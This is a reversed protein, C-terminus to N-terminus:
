SSLDALLEQFLRKIFYAIFKCVRWTRKSGNAIAKPTFYSLGRKMYLKYFKVIKIKCYNLVKQLFRNFKQAFRFFYGVVKQVTKEVKAALYAKARRYHKALNRGKKWWVLPNLWDPFLSKAIAPLAKTVFWVLSKRSVEKAGNFINLSRAYLNVLQEQGWTALAVFPAAVIEAVHKITEKAHHAKEIVAHSIAHKTSRYAEVMRNKIDALKEAANSYGNSLSQSIEKYQNIAFQVIPNLISQATQTISNFGEKGNHAVAKFLEVIKEGVAKTGEYFRKISKFQENFFTFTPDAFFRYLNSAMKTLAEFFDSFTEKTTGVLNVIKSAVADWAIHIWGRDKQRAQESGKNWGLMGETKNTIISIINQTWETVFRVLGQIQEAAKAVLQAVKPFTNQFLWRPIGYFFLYAPMVFALLIFKGGTVIGGMKETRLIAFQNKQFKEILTRELKSTDSEIEDVGIGIDREALRRRALDAEPRLDYPNYDARSITDRGYLDKSGNSM